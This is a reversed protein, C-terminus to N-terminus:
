ILAPGALSCAGHLALVLAQNLQDLRILLAAGSQQNRM